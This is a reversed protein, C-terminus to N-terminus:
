AKKYEYIWRYLNQRFRSASMPNGPPLHKVKWQNDFWTDIGYLRLNILYDLDEGRTIWPDFAVRTFAEAHIAACGGTLINSRSIRSTDLAQRMWKNFEARKNWLRDYWPVPKLPAYPKENRDLFYGSKVLVPLGSRTKLGLGYVAQLLFDADIVVEDDDLFVVVDHGLICAVALGMNRIAGYGRLSVPEGQVTAEASDAFAKMIPRASSPTVVVTDISPHADAIGNVREKAIAEDDPQAVLLLCVRGLGHVQELSALCDELEPKPDDLATTHDYCASVDDHCSSESSWYTPIVVIPNM